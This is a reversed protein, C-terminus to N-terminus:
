RNLKQMFTSLFIIVAARGTENHELVHMQTNQAITVLVTRAKGVSKVNLPLGTKFEMVVCFLMVVEVFIFM